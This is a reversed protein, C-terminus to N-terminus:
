KTLQIAFTDAFRNLYAFGRALSVSYAAERATNWVSISKRIALILYGTLVISYCLDCVLQCIPMLSTNLGPQGSCILWSVLNSMSVTLVLKFLVTRSISLQKSLRHQEVKAPCQCIMCRSRQWHFARSVVGHILGSLQCAPLPSCKM